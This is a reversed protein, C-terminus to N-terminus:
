RSGEAASMVKSVVLKVLLSAVRPAASRVAPYLVRGKRYRPPLGRMTRREVQHRGGNKSKRAYRSYTDKNDTGFEWAAWSRDPVLRRGRGIPRRSGAAIAVPPNGAAVRVNSGLIATDLSTRTKGAVEGRWIDNGQQRLAANIDSRVERSVRKLAISAARLEPQGKASLVM